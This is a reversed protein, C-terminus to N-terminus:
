SLTVFEYKKDAATDKDHDYSFAFKLLQHSFPRGKLSRKIDALHAQLKEIASYIESALTKAQELDVVSTRDKSSGPGCRVQKLFFGLSKRKGVVNLHLFVRDGGDKDYLVYPENILSGHVFFIWNQFMTVIAKRINKKNPVDKM